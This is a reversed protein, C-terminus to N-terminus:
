TEFDSGVDNRHQRTCCCRLGRLEAARGLCRHLPVGVVGVSIPLTAIKGNVKQFSDVQFSVKRGQPCEQWGVRERSTDHQLKDIVRRMMLEQCAGSVFLGKHWEELETQLLWGLVYRRASQSELLARM